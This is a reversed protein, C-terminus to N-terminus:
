ADTPADARGAVAEGVAAAVPARHVPPAMPDLSRGVRRPAGFPSAYLEARVAPSRGRLELAAPAVRAVHVPAAGAALARRPQPLVFLGPPPAPRPPPPLIATRVQRM